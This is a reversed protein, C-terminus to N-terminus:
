ENNNEIQEEQNTEQNAQEQDNGEQNNEDQNNEEQNDQNEQNNENQEEQANIDDKTGDQKIHEETIDMHMKMEGGILDDKCDPDDGELYIVITFRDVDGSMFGKRGKVLVEDSSYFKETGEEAEGTTENPRAFTTYEGNLYVRVRIAKDVNRIVDDIKIEYWYNVTESGKNELFFTYALYNDGNHSGEKEGDLDEPLWKYSINDMFEVKTAKLIRKDEKEQMHEYMILGSKRAFNPDLSITFDGAEYVIRLIFYIIILFLTIILLTLKVSKIRRDREKIKESNLKVQEKTVETKKNKKM